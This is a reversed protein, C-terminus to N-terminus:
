PNMFILNSKYWSHSERFEVNIFLLELFIKSSGYKINWIEYIKMFTNLSM